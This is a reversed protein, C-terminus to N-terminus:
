RCGFWPGPFATAHCCTCPVHSLNESGCFQRGRFPGRVQGGITAIVRLQPNTVIGGAVKIRMMFHGDKPIQQYIGYWRMRVFDDEHIAEFGERAYRLLDEYVDLGDKEQKILEVKNM